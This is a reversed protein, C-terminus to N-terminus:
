KFEVQEFCSFCLSAVGFCAGFALYEVFVMLVSVGASHSSIFSSIGFTM